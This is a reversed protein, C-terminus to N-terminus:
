SILKAEVRRNSPDSKLRGPLPDSPGFGRVEVRSRDVGQQALYDAVAAARRRSLELNFPVGGLSDTHGEILFRKARLEPMLLSQAFVRAKAMGDPTIRASNLDFGIMLDARAESSRLASAVASRSRGASAPASPRSPRAAYGAAGRTSHAASARGPRRAEEAPARGRNVAIRFGKTPPAERTPQEAEPTDGCKGAFTCLYGEVTPESQSQAAAPATWLVVVMGAITSLSVIRM